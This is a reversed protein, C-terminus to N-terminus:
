SHASMPRRELLLETIALVTNVGLSRGWWLSQSLAGHVLNTLALPPRSVGLAVGISAAPDAIPAVTCDTGSVVSIILCVRDTNIGVIESPTGSLTRTSAAFSFLGYADRPDLWHNLSRAAVM